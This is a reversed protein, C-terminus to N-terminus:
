NPAAPTVPTTTGKFVFLVKVPLHNLQSQAPMDSVGELNPKSAILPQNANGATFAPGSSSIGSKRQLQKTKRALDEAPMQMRYRTQYSRQQEPLAALPMPRKLDRAATMKKRGSGNGPDPANSQKGVAPTPQTQPANNEAKNLAFPQQQSALLRPLEEVQENLSAEDIAPQLSLSVLEDQKLDKQFEQLATALQADTAEVYVAFLEQDIGDSETRNSRRAEQEKTYQSRQLQQEVASQKQTDVPIDNQALLLEMTGLAQKVDVVRVEIVAVKGNIERFYPFADGIRIADVPIHSPIGSQPHTGQASLLKEAAKSEALTNTVSFHSDAKDMAFDKKALEKTARNRDSTAPLASRLAISPAPRAMSTKAPNETDLAYNDVVREDNSSSANNSFAVSEPTNEEGPYSYLREANALQKELQPVNMLLVFLVLAAVSSCASIAVAIRYRLMSPVTKVTTSNSDTLLTEQEIRRRISAALEPPASETATEQLLRSLEGFEHLEQQAESSRELLAELDRRAEPTGEQDFYASLNENTPPQSSM